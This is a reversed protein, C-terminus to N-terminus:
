YDESPKSYYWPKQKNDVMFYDLTKTHVEHCLSQSVNHKRKHNPFNERNNRSFIRSVSLRKDDDTRLSIIYKGRKKETITEIESENWVDYIEYIIISTKSANVIEGYESWVTNM